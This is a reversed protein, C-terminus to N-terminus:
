ELEYEEEQIKEWKVKQDNKGEQIDVFKRILMVSYFIVVVFVIGIACSLKWGLSVMIAPTKVIFVFMSILEISIWELFNGMKIISWKKRDTSNDVELVEIRHLRTEWKRDLYPELFVECYTANRFTSQRYKIQKFLMSFVLLINALAIIGQGTAWAYSIITIAVPISFTSVKLISASNGRIEERLMEYEKEIQLVDKCNM